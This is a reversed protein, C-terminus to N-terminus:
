PSIPQTRELDLDCLLNLIDTFTQGSAIKQVASWKTVLSPITICCWPDSHWASFITWQSWYWPWLSPKYIIFNHSNRSNDELISTRKCDFKTQYYLMMLWLIRHFFTTVSNLTLTVVFAWFTPSHKDPQYWIFRLVNKCFKTYRHLMM